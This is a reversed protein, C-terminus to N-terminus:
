PREGPKKSFDSESLVPKELAERMRDLVWGIGAVDDAFVSVPNETYARCEGTEKYYVEHIALWPEDTDSKADHRM